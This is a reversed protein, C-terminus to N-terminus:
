EKVLQLYVSESKTKVQLIYIGQSLVALEIGSRFLGGSSYITKSMVNQGASNMLSLDASAEDYSFEITTIDSAPNPYLQLASGNSLIYNVSVVTIVITFTDTCLGNSVTLTVTYTGALAYTHVPNQVTDTNTDGFDWLWSTAGTSADTFTYTLNNVSYTFGATPSPNVVVEVSDYGTCGTMNSTAGVIYMTTVTPSVTQDQGNLPGPNWVYQIGFPPGVVSAHLDVPDGSCITDQTSTATVVPSAFVEVTVSASDSCGASDMGTVIYNTTSPPSALATDGNASVGINPSWIYFIAGSAVIEIPAAGTCYDINQSPNTTVVPLPNPSVNIFLVTSTDTTGGNSCSVYCRFYTGTALTGTNVMGSNTGFDTWPGTDSPGFQWQYTLGGANLGTGNLSLNADGSGGCILTDTSIVDGATFSSTCATPFETWSVDDIFVHGGGRATGNLLIYNTDTTFSLPVNFTYNYWGNALEFVPLVMFRSRAVGGIHVAGTLDPSTNVFISVSDGATSSNDRYVWLSFTPTSGSAGSYNIVPTCIFEQDGPMVMYSSFRAMAAGSHVNCTPFNGTTRQVWLPNFGGNGTWGAPLFAGDFSETNVVQASAYPL